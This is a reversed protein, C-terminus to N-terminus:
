CKGDDVGCATLFREKDFRANDGRFFEVFVNALCLREDNTRVWMATRVINAAKIYDKKTM